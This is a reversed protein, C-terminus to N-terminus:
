KRKIDEKMKVLELRTKLLIRKEEDSQINKILSDIEKIRKEIKREELERKIGEMTKEDLYPLFSDIKQVINMVVEVIYKSSSNLSFNLTKGILLILSDGVFLRNMM